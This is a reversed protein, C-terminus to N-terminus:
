KEKNIEKITYFQLEDRFPNMNESFSIYMKDKLLSIIQSINSTWLNEYVGTSKKILYDVKLNKLDLNFLSKFKDLSIKKTFVLDKDYVMFGNEINKKIKKFELLIDNGTQYISKVYYEEPVDLKQKVEEYKLLVCKENGLIGEM